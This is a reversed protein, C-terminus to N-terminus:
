RKSEIVNEGDRKSEVEINGKDRSKKKQYNYCKKRRYICNVFVIKLHTDRAKQKERDQKCVYM